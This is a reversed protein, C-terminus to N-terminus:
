EAAFEGGGECVDAHAGVGDFGGAALEFVAGSHGSVAEFRANPVCEAAAAPM